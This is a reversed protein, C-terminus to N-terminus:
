FAGIEARFGTLEPIVPCQDEASLRGNTLLPAYFFGYQIYHLAQALCDEAPDGFIVELDDVVRADAPIGNFYEAEGAANAVKFTIPV